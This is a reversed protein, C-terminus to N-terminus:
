VALERKAAAHILRANPTRAIAWRIRGSFMLKQQVTRMCGTLAIAGVHGLLDGLFSGKRCM